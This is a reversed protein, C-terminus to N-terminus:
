NEFFHNLYSESFSQVEKIKNLMEYNVSLLVDAPLNFDIFNLDCSTTPKLKAYSCVILTDVDGSNNRSWYIESTTGKIAVGDRKLTYYGNNNIGKNEQERISPGVYLELLGNYNKTVSIPSLTVDVHNIKPDTALYIGNGAPEGKPYYFQVTVSKMKQNCGLDKKKTPVWTDGESEPPFYFFEEPISFKREGLVGCYNLNSAHATM